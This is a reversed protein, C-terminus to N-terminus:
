TRAMSRLALRLLLAVDPSGGEATAKEATDSVAAAGAAAEKASWGLSILGDIVPGRWSETGVDTVVSGFRDRLELILRAAGKKGIGPVATLANEDGTIVAHRLRDPTMAALIAQALRPGVGSVAQLQEFLSREDPDLFGFLTLSDERVVLSTALEARDGLHLRAATGPACSIRLGVGGVDVVVHDSAIASVRGSVSAIM